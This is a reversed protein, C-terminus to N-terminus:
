LNIVKSQLFVGFSFLEWGNIRMIIKTIPNLLGNTMTNGGHLFNKCMTSLGGGTKKLMSFLNLVKFRVGYPM